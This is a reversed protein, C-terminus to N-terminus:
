NNKMGKIREEVNIQHKSSSSSLQKLRTRSQAAAWWALGDRPNELYSCQLPNGNGEGICALSFPFRTRDSEKLGWPSCGVLSRWGHSKGPLLVPIPQWQRRWIQHKTKGIILRTNTRFWIHGRPSLPRETYVRMDQPKQISPTTELASIPSLLFSMWRDLKEINSWHICNKEKKFLLWTKNSSIIKNNLFMALYKM